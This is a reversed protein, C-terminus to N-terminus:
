VRDAISTNDDTIIVGFERAAERIGACSRLRRREVGCEEALYERAESLDSCVRNQNPSSVHPNATYKVGEEAPLKAPGISETRLLIIRGRRFDPSAEILHQIAPDTTRYTAPTVGYGSLAGGTFPIRVTSRGAPILAQFEMLGRIAYTKRM